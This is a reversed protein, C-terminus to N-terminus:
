EEVTVPISVKDSMRQCWADTCLFFSVSAELTHTGVKEARLSTRVEPAKSAKDVVDGRGLKAKAPKVGKPDKFTVELPAEPHVKKGNKPTVVLSFKGESNVKIKGDTGSTNLEYDDKTARDEAARAGKSTKSEGRAMAAGAGISALAVLLTSALLLKRSLNRM